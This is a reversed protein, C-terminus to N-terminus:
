PQIVDIGNGIFERGKEQEVPGDPHTPSPSPPAPFDSQCEGSLFYPDAAASSTELCPPPWMCTRYM